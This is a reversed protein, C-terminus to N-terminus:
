SRRRYGQLVAEKILAVIMSGRFRLLMGGGVVGCAFGRDAFLIIDGPWCCSAFSIGSECSDFAPAATFVGDGFVRGVSCGACFPPLSIGSECFVDESATEM